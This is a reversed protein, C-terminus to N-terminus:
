NKPFRPDSLISLDLIGLRPMEDLYISLSFVFSYFGVRLSSAVMYHCSWDFIELPFFAYKPYKSKLFQENVSDIYASVRSSVEPQPDVTLVLLTHWIVGFLTNSISKQTSSMQLSDSIYSDTMRAREDQWIDLSINRFKERYLSTFLILAAAVESRVMPCPDHVMETIKLAVIGDVYLSSTTQLSTVGIFLNALAFVMTARVDAKSHQLHQLILRYASDHTAQQKIETNEECLGGLLLAAHKLLIPLSSGFLSYCLPLIGLKFCALQGPPHLHCIAALVFAAIARSEGSASTGLAHIFYKHGNDKLLGHQCGRDLALVKAWIFTLIDRLELAPSQLLKLVYPFIGVSLARRIATPGTDLYRALLHLARLRHSQSLLVQLVIPLQLPVDNHDGHDLWLEFASLQENFFKCFEYSEPDNIIRPLQRVCIDIAFDWAAWLPHLHTSALRPETIPNCGYFKMIREALLYNRFLSAVLLDQRFLRQFIDHSFCNWAITDTVATFIWNLEGLPTRRDSLKGPLKSLMEINIDYTTTPNNLVFWRLAIDIPTTLCATFLDAPLDPSLPLIEESGCAAMQICDDMCHLSGETSDQGPSGSDEAQMSFGRKRQEAFTNFATIINGAQSCDYVLISPNGLWTQLDYLSLPIYQTFNRNFVWIEGNTTPKPVGHGNYHFLVREDKANRRLSVCVKKIDDITPDLCIKYKARPQWREYQNQLQKGIQELIASPNVSAQQTTPDIWCELRASHQPRVIDPPDVGINLCICLAVATTKVREVPRWFTEEDSELTSDASVISKGTGLIRHSFPRKPPEPVGVNRSGNDPQGYVEKKTLLDSSSSHGIGLRLFQIHAFPDRKLLSQITGIWNM